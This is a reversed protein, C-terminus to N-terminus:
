LHQLYSSVSHVTIKAHNSNYHLQCLLEDPMMSLHSMMCCVPNLKAGVVAALSADVSAAESM